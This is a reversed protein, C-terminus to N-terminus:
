LAVAPFGDAEGALLVPLRTARYTWQGIAPLGGFKMAAVLHRMARATALPGGSQFTNPEIDNWPKAM